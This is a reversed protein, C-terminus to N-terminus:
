RTRKMGTQGQVWRTLIENNAQSAKRTEILEDRIAILENRLEGIRQETLDKRALEKSMREQDEKLYSVSQRLSGYNISSSLITILVAVLSLAIGIWQAKGNKNTM